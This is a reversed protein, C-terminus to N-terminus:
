FFGQGFKGQGGGFGGQGAAPPRDGLQIKQLVEEIKDHNERSQTVILQGICNQAPM